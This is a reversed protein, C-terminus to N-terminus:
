QSGEYHLRLYDSSAFEEPATRLQMARVLSIRHPGASAPLQWSTVRALWQTRDCLYLVQGIRCGRSHLSIRVHRCPAIQTTYSPARSFWSCHARASSPSRPYTSSDASYWQGFIGGAGLPQIDRAIPFGGHQRHRGRSNSASGAGSAFRDANDPPAMAGRNYSQCPTVNLGTIFSGKSRLELM